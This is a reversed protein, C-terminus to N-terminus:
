FFSFFVFLTLTVQIRISINLIRNYKISKEQNKIELANKLQSYAGISTLGSIVIAAFLRLGIALITLSQNAATIDYSYRHFHLGLIAHLSITISPTTSTPSLYSLPPSQILRKMTNLLVHLFRNAINDFSIQLYVHNFLSFYDM